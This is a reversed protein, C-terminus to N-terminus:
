GDDAGAFGAEPSAVGVAFPEDVGAAVSPGEAGESSDMEAAKEERSARRRASCAARGGRVARMRKM